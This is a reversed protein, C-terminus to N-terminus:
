QGPIDNTDFRSVQLIDESSINYKAPKTTFAAAFNLSRLINLTDENYGGYPYCFYFAKKDVGIEDLMKMSNKIDIYQDEKSIRNLWPHQDGHSGIEMGAELMEKLNNESVYLEDAFSKEDASVYKTFLSNTLDNRLEYPLGTQLIRKIYNVNADDYRNPVFYERRYEKIPLLEESTAEEIFKEIDEIILSKDKCRELIFHIKNVDLVRREQIAVRPPFFLGKFNRKILEPMVYKYHDLYGDDFTLLIPNSPLDYNKNQANVLDASSIVTYNRSIYELQSIFSTLELGKIQPYISDKIPRVYHYMVVTLENNIVTLKKSM